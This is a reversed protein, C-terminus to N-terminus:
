RPDIQDFWDRVDGRYQGAGSDKDLLREGVRIREALRGPGFITFAQITNLSLFNAPLRRGDLVGATSMPM